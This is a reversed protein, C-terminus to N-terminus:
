IGRGSLASGKRRGTVPTLPLDKAFFSAPPPPEEVFVVHRARARSQAALVKRRQAIM